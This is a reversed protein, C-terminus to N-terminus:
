YIGKKIEWITRTSCDYKMANERYSLGNERIEQCQEPTFKKPKKGRQFIVTKDQLVEVRATYGEKLGKNIAALMKNKTKNSIRVREGNHYVSFTVSYDNIEKVNENMVCGGM